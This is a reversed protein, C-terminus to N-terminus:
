DTWTRWTRSYSTAYGHHQPVRARYYDSGHRPAEIRSRFRGQARAELREWVQWACSTRCAKRQVIVTLGAAGPTVDGRMVLQNHGNLVVTTEVTRTPLAGAPAPAAVAPGAGWGTVLAALTALALLPARLPRTPV